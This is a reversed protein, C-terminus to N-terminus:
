NDGAVPIVKRYGAYRLSRALHTKQGPDPLPGRLLGLYEDFMARDLGLAPARGLAPTELRLDALLRSWRLLSARAEDLRGQGLLRGAEGLALAAGHALLNELVGLELPGRDAEGRALALNGRATSNRMYVLDKFRLTVEAVPGPGPAVVDLLVVHADGAHYSPIVMQIGPDDKGRDAVLGLNRAVRLDISQEARRVRRAEARDLARSGLVDLLKVGPALRIHLRLARAVVSAAASLEREVLGEAEAPDALLRRQGQGALVLRDIEGQDVDSGVGVVSTPVGAVAHDHTLQILEALRSLRGATVLLILNSSLPASSDDADFTRGARTLAESLSLPEGTRAGGALRQMAVVLPGHRFDRPGLGQEGPAGAVTLTFRDGVDRARALALLLARVSRAVRPPAGGRWDLVVAVNMEPRHGAHRMTGQLGVQVLTRAPGRVARRDAHVYLGVAASAPPDFAQARPRAADDLRPARGTPGALVRRDFGALQARLLRLAPDGPIYTNQWYGTPAQSCCLDVREREAWFARATPEDPLPPPVVYAPVEPAAPRDGAPAPPEAAHMEPPAARGLGVAGLGGLGSTGPAADRGFVSLLGLVGADKAADRALRRALGPGKLGYLGESGAHRAGEGSDDDPGRKRLWDAVADERAEPPRILLKVFRGEVEFGDLALSESDPPVMLVGFLVFGVAAASALLAWVLPDVKELLRRASRSQEPREDM